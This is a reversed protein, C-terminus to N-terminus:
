RVNMGRDRFDGCYPHRLGCGAYAPATLRGCTRRDGGLTLGERGSHERYFRQSRRGREGILGVVIVDAPTFRAMMGLLVSKGVRLRCVPGYAPGGVTLLANIARVGTDLVSKIPDRHLPNFPQTFLAGAVPKGPPAVM